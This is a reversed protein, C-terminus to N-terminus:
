ATGKQRKGGIRPSPKVKKTTGNMEAGGDDEIKIGSPRRRKNAVNPSTNASAGQSGSLNSGQQSHQHVMAVPGAVHVHAPSPTHAPGGIHPSGQQPLGLSQLAPSAFHEPGNMGPTRQGPVGHPGANNFQAQSLGAPISQTGRVTEHVLNSLAEAPTLNEHNQSYHFLPEM